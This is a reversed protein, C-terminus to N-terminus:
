FMALSEWTNEERTKERKKKKKKTELLMMQKYIFQLILDVQIARLTAVKWWYSSSLFSDAIGIIIFGILALYINRM